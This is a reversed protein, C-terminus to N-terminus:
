LRVACRSQTVTPVVTFVAAYLQCVSAGKFICYINRVELLLNSIVERHQQVRAGPIPLPKTQAFTRPKKKRRRFPVFAAVNLAATHENLECVKVKWRRSSDRETM